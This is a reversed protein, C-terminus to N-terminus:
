NTSKTIEQWEQIYEDAHEMFHPYSIVPRNDLSDLAKNCEYQVERDESETLL